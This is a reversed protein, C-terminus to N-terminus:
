IQITEIKNCDSLIQNVTKMWKERSINKKNRRIEASEPM